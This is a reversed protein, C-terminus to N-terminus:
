CEVLQEVRYLTKETNHNPTIFRNPNCNFKEKRVSGYYLFIQLFPMEKTGLFVYLKVEVFEFINVDKYYPARATDRQRGYQPLKVTNKSVKRKFCTSKEGWDMTTNTSLITRMCIMSQEATTLQSKELSM